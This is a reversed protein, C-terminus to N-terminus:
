RRRRDVSTEESHFNRARGPPESHASHRSANAHIKTGDLGVTGLRLLGM